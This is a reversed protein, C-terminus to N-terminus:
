SSLPHQYQVRYLLTCLVVLPPSSSTRCIWIQQRGLLVEQPHNAPRSWCHAFPLRVAPLPLADCTVHGVGSEDWVPIFELDCSQDCSEVLALVHVMDVNPKLWM